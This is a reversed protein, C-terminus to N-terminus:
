VTLWDTHIVSSRGADVRFRVPGRPVGEIEFFGGEGIDVPESIEDQSQWAVVARVAPTVHGTAVVQGDARQLELVLHWGRPGAFAYHGGEGRVGVPTASRVLEALAVDPDRWALAERAGELLRAPVDEGLALGDRLQRLLETHAAPDQEDFTEGDSM